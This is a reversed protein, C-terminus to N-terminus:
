RAAEHLEMLDQHDCLRTTNMDVETSPENFCITTDNTM